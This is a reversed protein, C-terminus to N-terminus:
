VFINRGSINNRIYEKYFFLNIKESAVSRNKKFKVLRRFDRVM